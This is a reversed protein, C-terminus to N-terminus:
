RELELKSQRLFMLPTAILLVIAIKTNVLALMFAFFHLVANLASKVTARMLLRRDLGDRALDTVFFSYYRMWAFSVGALGMAAAYFMVPLREGPYDGLLGTPFPIFALWFLFVSNSWLLARNSKHLLHFFQHHAVWWICVITFSMAYSLFKPRMEWLSAALAESINSGTLKPVQIQFVLLTIVIAFVGDSFAEIRAVSMTGFRLPRAPLPQTEM